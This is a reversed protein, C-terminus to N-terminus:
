YAHAGEGPMTPYTNQFTIDAAGPGNKEVFRPAILDDWSQISIRAADRQAETFPTYGPADYFGFIDQYHKSNYIGGKVTSDPFSFTIVGKHPTIAVGADLQWAVTGPQNPGHPLVEKDRIKTGVLDPTYKPLGLDTEWGFLHNFKAAKLLDDPM